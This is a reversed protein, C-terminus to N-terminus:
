PQCTWAPRSHRPRPILESFLAQCFSLSGSVQTWYYRDKFKQMMTVPGSRTFHEPNIGLAPLEAPGSLGWAGHGGLVTFPAMCHKCM